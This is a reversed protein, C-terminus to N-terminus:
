AYHTVERIRKAVDSLNNHYHELRRALVEYAEGQDILTPTDDDSLALVVRLIVSIDDLRDAPIEMPIGLGPADSETKTIRNAIAM